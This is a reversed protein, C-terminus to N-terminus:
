TPGKAFIGDEMVLIRTSYRRALELDHTAFILVGSSMSDRLGDMMREVQERDQGATPEDLILVDPTCALSAAVAVRLRQGRSLAQPPRHLLDGISLAEAAERVRSSVAEPSMRHDTPGYALERQVTSCFLALDPDQPVDIVRSSGRTTGADLRGSLAGLLTSKGSGNAGVLAIREGAGVRISVGDLAPRPDPSSPYIYRLNEADLLPSEILPTPEDGQISRLDELEGEPPLYFGEARLQSRDIDHASQDFLLQGEQMRIVRDVQDLCSGLRHEVMVVCTGGDALSRLVEVVQAAGRPDLQALPEDLLLLRAGGAIAAAIVLRQQQGGSLARIPREPDLDLGVLSLVEIIRAEMQEAPWRASELAFAIEDGLNGAVLQDGPVQSVFGIHGVRVAPEMEEPPHGNVTVQGQFEGAGHRQLLGACLRLLTSKGCGTPGTLLVFEGESLDCDVGQVAPETASPYRYGTAHLRLM